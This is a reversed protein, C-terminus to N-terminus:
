LSLLFFPIWSSGLVKPENGACIAGMKIKIRRKSRIVAQVVAEQIQTMLTLEHRWSM